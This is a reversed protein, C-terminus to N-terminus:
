RKTSDYRQGDDVPLSGKGQDHPVGLSVTGACRGGKGDAADFYIAYVRGNGKGSREARVQAQAKGVGFGDPSTDGDGLGNVPEDQTIKTITVQTPDGDSDTIGLISILIIKHNPPWLRNMSPQALACDPPRNPPLTPDSEFPVVITTQALQSFSCNNEENLEIVGEAADACAALFYLGPTLSSPFTVSHGDAEQHKEGPALAPVSREGIVQAAALTALDTIEEASFFYRTTSPGSPTSGINATTEIVKITVARVVKLVPPIFLPVILDTGGSWTVEVSGLPTIAEGEQRVCIKDTGEDRGTYSFFVKGDEDTVGQFTGGELFSECTV